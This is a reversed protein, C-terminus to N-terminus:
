EDLPTRGVTNRRQTHDLFMLFPHEMYIYSMQLGLTLSKVRIRSVHLFHYAGLLALLYCIPNLEPKQPNFIYETSIGVLQLKTISNIVEFNVSPEFIHFQERNQTDDKRLPWALRRHITGVRKPPVYALVSVICLLNAYGRRQSSVCFRSCNWM